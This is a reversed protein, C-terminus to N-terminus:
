GQESPQKQRLHGGFCAEGAEETHGTRALHNAKATASVEKDNKDNAALAPAIEIAASGLMFLAALVLEFLIAFATKARDLHARNM